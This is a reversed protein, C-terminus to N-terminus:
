DELRQAIVEFVHWHKPGSFANGDEDIEEFSEVAFGSAFLARAQDLTHFTLDSRGAWDDRDGFLQGAFRGGARLSRKINTWLRDFNGPHCFPLSYGAYILDSEPFELEEFASVRADLAARHKEAAKSKVYEIAQPTSDVALVNWGAELLAMTETGDGCGLDIAQKPNSGDPNSDFLGVVNTFLPRPERGAIWEYYGEWNGERTDSDRNNTM